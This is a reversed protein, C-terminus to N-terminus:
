VFFVFFLIRLCIFIANLFVAIRQAIIVYIRPSNLYSHLLKMANKVYISRSFTMGKQFSSNTAKLIAGFM